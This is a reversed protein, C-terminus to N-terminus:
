KEFAFIPRNPDNMGEFTGRINYDFYEVADEEGMEDDTALSEIIQRYSYIVRGELSYGIVSHDFQDRPELLMANPNYEAIQDFLEEREVEREARLKEIIDNM